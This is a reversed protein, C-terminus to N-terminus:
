FNIDNLADVTSARYLRFAGQTTVPNKHLGTITEYYVGGLQNDGWGALDASEPPTASFQFSIQRTV